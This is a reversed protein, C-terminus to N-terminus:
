RNARLKADADNRPLREIRTAFGLDRWAAAVAAGDDQEGVLALACGGGGAGTLKAGYAGAAEAVRCMQDLGATSVGLEVLHSHARRMAQGLAPLDAASIADIGRDTAEALGCLRPDARDGATVAAVHAVMRATSRPQGSNGIVLTLPPVSLPRLGTDRRFVGAGGSSALAVDLGSPAGHFVREGCSAASRIADDDLNAGIHRALARAVAVTMAASSGLGAGAWIAAEGTLRASVEASPRGAVRGVEAAIAAVAQAVPHEPSADVEVEVQWQPIVLALSGTAAAITVGCSLASALAPYGYVVSHEGLLIVKGFGIAAPALM